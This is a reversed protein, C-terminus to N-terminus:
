VTKSYPNESPQTAVGGDRMSLARPEAPHSWVNRVSIAGLSSFWILMKGVL